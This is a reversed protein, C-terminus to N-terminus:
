AVVWGTALWRPWCRASLSGGVGAFIYTLEQGVANAIGDISRGLEAGMAALGVDGALGRRELWCGAVDAHADHPLYHGGAAMTRLKDSRGIYRAVPYLYGAAAVAVGLIRGVGVCSMLSLDARRRGFLRDVARVAQGSRLAWCIAFRGIRHPGVIRSSTAWRQSEPVFLRILFTLLASRTGTLM